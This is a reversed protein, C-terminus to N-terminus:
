NIECLIFVFLYREDAKLSGSTFGSGDTHQFFFFLFFSLVFVYKCLIEYNGDIFKEAPKYRTTATFKLTFSDVRTYNIHFMWRNSGGYMLSKAYLLELTRM